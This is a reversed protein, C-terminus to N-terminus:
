GDIEVEAAIVVPLDFPTAAVGMATRAHKGREPGYLELILDSCGNIIATTQTFGSAVNVFGQIMLWASVRDLSGLERKLSGMISLTALYAAPYAQEPSVPAAPGVKGLPGAITGDSNQPGHGSLYARNKHVRVLAFPINAVSHAVRAPEPLVLRLARLKDEVKSYPASSSSM